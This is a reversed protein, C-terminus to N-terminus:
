NVITPCNFYNLHKSSLNSNVDLYVKSDETNAKIASGPYGLGMYTDYNNPVQKQYLFPNEINPDVMGITNNTIMTNPNYMKTDNNYNYEGFKKDVKKVQEYKMPLNALGSYDQSNSDIFLSPVNNNSDNKLQPTQYISFDNIQLNNILYNATQRNDISQVKNPNFEVNGILDSSIQQFHEGNPLSQNITGPGNVNLDEWDLRLETNGMKEDPDLQINVSGNPGYTYNEVLTDGKISWNTPGSSSDNGTYQVRNTQNYSTVNGNADGAYSYLTTDNTTIKPNDIYYWHKSGQTENETNGSYSDLLTQNNTTKPADVYYWHKSGQTQNEANGSYSYLTTDKTTVKADSISLNHFEDHGKLNIQQVVTPMIQERGTFNVYKNNIYQQSTENQANIIPLFSNDVKSRINNDISMYTNPRPNINGTTNSIPGSGPTAQDLVLITNDLLSGNYNM